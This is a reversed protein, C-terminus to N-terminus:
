RDRCILYQAALNKITTVITRRMWARADGVHGMAGAPELPWRRRVAQESELWIRAFPGAAESELWGVTTVLVPLRSVQGAAAARVADVIRQESGPGMTVVLITPFGDYDRAARASSKYRHYAAFKARLAAPHVTGRDFELFFGYERRGLRLLGYGDPRMRGCGCAAANRWELLAGGRQGRALRAFTVFVGDAGLTHALHAVLARRQGVATAPGGGALGHHRVAVALSLGLSGALMTLGRVTAELLEDQNDLNPPVEEAALVRVLGRRVLESRRERAWRTGRGLIEGLAVTPLFPHRGVVDLAARGGASFGWETVAAHLRALDIPRPVAVM